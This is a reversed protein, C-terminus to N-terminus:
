PFSVPVQLVFCDVCRVYLMAVNDTQSGILEAYAAHVFADAGNVASSELFPM